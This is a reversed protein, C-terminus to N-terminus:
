RASPAMHFFEDPNPPCMRWLQALGDYNEPPWIPEELWKLRADRNRRSLVDGSQIELAGQSRFRDVKNLRALAM